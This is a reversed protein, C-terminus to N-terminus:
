IIIEYKAAVLPYKEMDGYKNKSIIYGSEMEDESYFLRISKQFTNIIEECIDDCRVKELVLLVSNEEIWKLCEKEKLYDKICMELQALLEKCKDEGHKKAYAVLSKYKGIKMIAVRYDGIYSSSICAKEYNVMHIYKMAYESVHQTVEDPKGLFYGQGYHVGLQILMKLQEDTEIGEAILKMGTLKAFEVFSKVMSCKVADTCIDQIIEIDLKLYCPKVDCILNLGSYCSGVDDVAILYGQKKYHHVVNQFEKMNTAASHETIEIVIQDVSLDHKEIYKRTFGKKFEGDTMVLPNVNIFVKKDAFTDKNKSVQKLIKKRCLQEVEWLKSYLGAMKFLTEPEKIVDTKKLRSLAEYGLIDGSTLDVIPQFVPYVLEEDVIRELEERILNKNEM